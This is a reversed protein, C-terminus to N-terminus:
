MDSMVETFKKLRVEEKKSRVKRSRGAFNLFINQSRLPRRDSRLSITATQPPLRLRVALLGRVFAFALNVAFSNSQRDVIIRLMLSVHFFRGPITRADEPCM